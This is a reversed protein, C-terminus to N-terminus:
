ESRSTKIQKDKLDKPRSLLKSRESRYSMQDNVSDYYEMMRKNILRRERAKIEEEEKKNIDEEVIQAIPL